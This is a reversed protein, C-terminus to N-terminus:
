IRGMMMALPGVIVAGGAVVANRFACREKMGCVSAYVVSLGLLVWCVWDFWTMSGSASVGIFDMLSGGWALVTDSWVGMVVLAVLGVAWSVMSTVDFMGVVGMVVALMVALAFVRMMDGLDFMSMVAGLVLGFSGAVLVFGIGYMWVSASSVMRTMGVCFAVVAVAAWVALVWWKTASVDWDNTVQYCWATFVVGLAAFFAMCLAYAWQPMVSAGVRRDLANLDFM